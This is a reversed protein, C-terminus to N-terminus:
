PTTGSTPPLIENVVGLGQGDFVVGAALARRVTDQAEKLKNTQRYLLALRWWGESIKPDNDISAQMLAAAEDLKGLTLKLAALM